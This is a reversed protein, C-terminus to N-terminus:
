DLDKESQNLKLYLEIEKSRKGYKEVLNPLTSSIVFEEDNNLIFKYLLLIEKESFFWIYKILDHKEEKLSDYINERLNYIKKLSNQIGKKEEEYLESLYSLTLSNNKFNTADNLLNINNKDYFDVVSKEKLSANNEEIRELTELTENVGFIAINMVIDNQNKTQPKVITEEWFFADKVRDCVLSTTFKLKKRIKGEKNNREFPVKNEIVKEEM